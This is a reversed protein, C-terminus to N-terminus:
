ESKNSSFQKVHEICRCSVWGSVHDPIAEKGITFFGNPAAKQDSVLLRMEGPQGCEECTTKSVNEATTVLGRIKKFLDSPQKPPVQIKAINEGFAVDIVTTEQGDFEWYFRLSGWKEKIQEIRFVSADADPLLRDLEGCLKDILDRWGVSVYSFCRPVKGHFLRPYKLVLEVLNTDAPECYYTLKQSDNM